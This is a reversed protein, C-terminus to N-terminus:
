LRIRYIGDACLAVSSLERRVLDAAGTDVPCAVICQRPEPAAAVLVARPLRDDLRMARVRHADERNIRLLHYHLSV